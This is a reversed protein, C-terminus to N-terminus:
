LAVVSLCQLESLAGRPESRFDAECLDEPFRAGVCTFSMEGKLLKALSAYSEILSNGNDLVKAGIDCTALTLLLTEKFGFNRGIVRHNLQEDSLILRTFGQGIGFAGPGTDEDVSEGPPPDADGFSHGALLLLLLALEVMLELREVRLNVAFLEARLRVLSAESLQFRFQFLRAEVQFGKLDIEIGSM